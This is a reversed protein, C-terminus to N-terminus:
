GRMNRHQTTSNITPANEQLWDLVDQKKYRVLKGIKKFPLGTGIFRDRELSATSRQLVASIIHQDFLAMNPAEWFMNLIETINLLNKKM